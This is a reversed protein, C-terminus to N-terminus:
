SRNKLMKDLIIAKETDQDSFARIVADGISIQGTTWLDAIRQPECAHILGQM